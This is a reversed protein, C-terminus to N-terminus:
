YSNSFNGDKLLQVAMAPTISAQSTPSQAISNDINTVNM